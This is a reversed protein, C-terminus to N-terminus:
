KILEDTTTIHVNSYKGTNEIVYKSWFKGDLLILYHRGQPDSSLHKIDKDIEKQTNMQSGGTVKVTKDVTLIGDFGNTNPYKSDKIILDFSKMGKSKESQKKKEKKEVLEFSESLVLSSKKSKPLIYIKIKSNKEIYEKKWSENVNQREAKINWNDLAQDLGIGKLTLLDSCLKVQTQNYQQSYHKLKKYVSEYYEVEGKCGKKTYNGGNLIFNWIKLIITKNSNEKNSIKDSLYKMYNMTTLNNYM